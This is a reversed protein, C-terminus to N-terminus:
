EYDSGLREMIADIAQRTLPKTMLDADNATGDIKTVALRNNRIATQMWLDAVDLHRMKGIGKRQLVGLAASSDIHVTIQM